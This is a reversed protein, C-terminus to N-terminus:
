KIKSIKQSLQFDIKLFIMKKGFIKEFTELISKLKKKFCPSETNRRAGGM